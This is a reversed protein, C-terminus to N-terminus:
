HSSNLRTSKRDSLLREFQKADTIRKRFENIAYSKAQGTDGLIFLNKKTLLAIAICEILEEREAVCTNVEAIIAKMKERLM